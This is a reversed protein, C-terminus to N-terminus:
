GEGLCPERDERGERNGNGMRCRQMGEGPASHLGGRRSVGLLQRPLPPAAHSHSLRHAGRPLVALLRDAQNGVLAGPSCPWPPCHTLTAQQGTGMQRVRPHEERGGRREALGARKWILDPHQPLLHLLRFQEPWHSASKSKVVESTTSPATPETGLESGKWFAGSASTPTSPVM